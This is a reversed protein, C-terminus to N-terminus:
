LVYVNVSVVFMFLILCAYYERRNNSPNNYELNMSMENLFEHRDDHWVMGDM